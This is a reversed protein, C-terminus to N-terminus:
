TTAPRGCCKKYKTGSGCPCPANRPTRGTAADAKRKAAMEEVLEITAMKATAAIDDLKDDPLDLQKRLRRRVDLIMGADSMSGAPGFVQAREIMPVRDAAMNAFELGMVTYGANARTRGIVELMEAAEHYPHYDAPALERLQTLYDGAEDERNLEFMVDALEVLAKGAIRGNEGPDNIYRQLLEISRDYDDAVRWWSSAEFLDEGRHDPFELLDDEYQRATEAARLRVEDDSLM